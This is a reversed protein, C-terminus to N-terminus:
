KQQHIGLGRKTDAPVTTPRTSAGSAPLKEELDPWQPGAGHLRLSGLVTLNGYVFKDRMLELVGVALHFFRRLFVAQRIQAARVRGRRSVLIALM